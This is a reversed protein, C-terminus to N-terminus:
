RQTDPPAALPAQTRLANLADCAKGVPNQGAELAPCNEYAFRLGADHQAESWDFDVAWTAMSYRIKKCSEAPESPSCPNKPGGTGHTSFYDRVAENLQISSCEKSSKFGNSERFLKKAKISGLRNDLKEFLIDQTIDKDFLVKPRMVWLIQCYPPDAETPFMNPCKEKNARVELVMTQLNEKPVTAAFLDSTQNLDNCLRGARYANIAGMVIKRTLFHPIGARVLFCSSFAAAITHYYKSPLATPGKIPAQISSIKKKLDTPIDTEPGLAGPIYFPDNSMPCSFKGTLKTSEVLNKEVTQFCQKKSDEGVTIKQCLKEVHGALESRKADSLLDVRRPHNPPLEFPSQDFQGTNDHGCLGILHLALIKDGASYKLAKKWLWGAPPDQSTQTLDVPIFTETIKRISADSFNKSAASAHIDAYFESALNQFCPNKELLSSNMTKLGVNSGPSVQIGLTSLYDRVGQQQRQPLLKFTMQALKQKDPLKSMLDELQASARPQLLLIVFCFSIRLIRM